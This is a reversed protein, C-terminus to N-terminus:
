VKCGLVKFKKEELKHYNVFIQELEKRLKPSLDGVDDIASYVHNGEAVAILRDNRVTKLSWVSHVQDLIM